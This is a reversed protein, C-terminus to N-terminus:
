QETVVMACSFSYDPEMMFSGFFTNDSAVMAQNDKTLVLYSKKCHVRCVSVALNFLTIFTIYNKKLNGQLIM